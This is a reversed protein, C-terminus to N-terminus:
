SCCVDDDEMISGAQCTILFNNYNSMRNKCRQSACIATAADNVETASSLMGLNRYYDLCTDDAYFSNRARVCQNAANSYSPPNIQLIFIFISYNNIALLIYTAVYGLVFDVLHYEVYSMCKELSFQM